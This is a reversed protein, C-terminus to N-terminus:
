TKPGFCRIYALDLEARRVAEDAAKVRLASATVLGEDFPFNCLEDLFEDELQLATARLEDLTPM